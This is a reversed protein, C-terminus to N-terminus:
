GDHSEGSSPNSDAELARRGADTLMEGCIRWGDDHLRSWAHGPLDDDPRTYEAIVNAQGRVIGDRHYAWETWRRRMCAIGTTGRGRSATGEDRLRTLWARQAATLREPM